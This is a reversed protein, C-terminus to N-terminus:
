RIGESMKRWVDCNNCEVKICNECETHYTNWIDDERKFDFDDQDSYRAPFEKYSSYGYDKWDFYKRREPMKFRYMEMQMNTHIVYIRNGMAKTIVAGKPLDKAESAFAIYDKTQGFYVPDQQDCAIYIRDPFKVSMVAIRFSGEIKMCAKKIAKIIKFHKSTDNQIIMKLIAESDCKTKQKPHVNSIVGNHVICIGGGIHPHNNENMNPEGHTAFRTHAIMTDSTPLKFKTNAFRGPEKFYMVQGVENWAAGWAHGGRTENASIMNKVQQQNLKGVYGCIGCM